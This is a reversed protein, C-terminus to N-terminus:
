LANFSGTVKLPDYIMALNIAQSKMVQGNM